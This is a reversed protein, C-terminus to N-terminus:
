NLLIMLPLEVTQNDETIEVTQFVPYLEGPTMLTSDKSYGFVTYSGKRLYRFEFGGDYGARLDDDYFTHDGYTIYIREEIGYYASQLATFTSNYDRVYVRGKITSTGGTGAPKDCGFMILTLISIFAISFIGKEKM